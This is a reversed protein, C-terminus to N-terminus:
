LYTLLSLKRVNVLSEIYEDGSMSLLKLFEPSGKLELSSVLEKVYLFNFLADHDALSQCIVREKLAPNDTPVGTPVHGGYGRGSLYFDFGEIVCQFRGYEMLLCYLIRGLGMASAISDGAPFKAAVFPPEIKSIASHVYITKYKHTLLLKEDNGIQTYTYSNLFLIVDGYDTVSAGIMKTLVIAHDSYKSDPPDDSNPGYIYFKKLPQENSSSECEVGASVMDGASCYGFKAMVLLYLEAANKSAQSSSNTIITNAWAIKMIISEKIRGNAFLVLYELRMKNIEVLHRIYCKRRGCLVKIIYLYYGLIRISPSYGFLRVTVRILLRTAKTIPSLNNIGPGFECIERYKLFSKTLKKVIPVEVSPNEQRSIM